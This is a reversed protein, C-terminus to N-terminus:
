QPIESLCFWGAGLAWLCSCAQEMPVKEEKCSYSPFDLGERSRQGGRLMCAGFVDPGM